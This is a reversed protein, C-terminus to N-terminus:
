TGHIWMQHLQAKILVVLGKGHNRLAIASHQQHKQNPVAFLWGFSPINKLLINCPVMRLHSGHRKKPSHKWAGSILSKAINRPWCTKLVQCGWGKEQTHLELRFYSPQFKLLPL